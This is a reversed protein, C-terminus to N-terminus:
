GGYCIGTINASDATGHGLKKKEIGHTIEEQLFTSFSGSRHDPIFGFFAYLINIGGLM